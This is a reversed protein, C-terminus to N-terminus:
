RHNEDYLRRKALVSVWVLGSRIIREGISLEVSGIAAGGASRGGSSRPGGGGSCPPSSVSSRKM